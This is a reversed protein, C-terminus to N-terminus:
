DYKTDASVFYTIGDSGRFFGITCNSYTYIIDEGAMGGLNYCSVETKVKQPKEVQDLLSILEAADTDVQAANRLKRSLAKNYTGKMSFAYLKDGYVVVGSAMRGNELYLKTGDWGKHAKGNKKVRYSVGGIKVIGAKRQQLKGTKGFVYWIGKVKSPGVAAKGSAKFYYRAFGADIWKGKVMKGNKYYYYAGNKMTLGDDKSSGATGGAGKEAAWSNFKYNKASGGLNLPTGGFRPGMNDYSKGNILVYAHNKPVGRVTPKYGLEYAFAAVACAFSFCEGRHTTIMRYACRQMWGETGIDKPEASGQWGSWLCWNFCKRLKKTRSMDPSTLQNLRKMVAVKLKASTNMKASGDAQLKIGEVTEGTTCKGSRAVKYLKDGVLCWGTAAPRGKRNVYYYGGKLQYVKNKSPRLLKGKDSFIYYTDDIKQSKGAVANGREDFYYRNRGVTKWASKVQKGNVYYQYTGNDSVLGNQGDAWAMSANGSWISAVLIVALAISTKKLARKM